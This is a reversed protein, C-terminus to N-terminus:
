IFVGPTGPPMPIAFPPPPAGVPAGVTPAVCVISTLATVYATTLNTILVAIQPTLGVKSDAPSFFGTATLATTLASSFTGGFSALNAPVVTWAGVAGGPVPVMQIQAMAMTKVFIETTFLQALPTGMAGAWGMSTQFTTAATVANPMTFVMPLATATTGTVGVYAGLVPTALLTTAFTGAVNLLLTMIPNHLLVGMAPNSRIAGNPNAPLPLYTAASGWVAAAFAPPALAM